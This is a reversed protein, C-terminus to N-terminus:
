VLLPGLFSPSFFFYDEKVVFHGGETPIRVTPSSNISTTKEVVGSLITALGDDIPVWTGCM